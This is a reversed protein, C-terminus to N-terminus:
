TAVEDVAVRELMPPFCRNEAEMQRQYEPRCNVCYSFDSKYRGREDFPRTTRSKLKDEQCSTLYSLWIDRTAFCPPAPPALIAIVRRDM